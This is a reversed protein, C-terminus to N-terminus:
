AGPRDCCQTFLILGTNLAWFTAGVDTPSVASVAVVLTIAAPARGMLDTPDSMAAVLSSGLTGRLKLGAVANIM